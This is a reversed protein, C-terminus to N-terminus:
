CCCLISMYRDGNAFYMTGKGDQRDAKWEGDYKDATVSVSLVGRGDKKGNKWEGEYQIGPATFM